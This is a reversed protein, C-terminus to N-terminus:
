GYRKYLLRLREAKLVAAARCSVDLNEFIQSLHFEVTREKIM